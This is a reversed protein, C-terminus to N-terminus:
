RLCLYPTDNVNMKHPGQTPSLKLFVCFQQHLELVVNKCDQIPLDSDKTKCM